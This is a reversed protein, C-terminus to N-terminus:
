QITRSNCPFTYTENKLASRIENELQDEDFDTEFFEDFTLGKYELLYHTKMRSLFYFHSANSLDLNNSIFLDIGKTTELFSCEAFHDCFGECKWQDFFSCYLSKVYGLRDTIICHAFEHALIYKLPASITSDEVSDLVLSKKFTTPKILQIHTIPNTLATYGYADIFILRKQFDHYNNCFITSVQPLSLTDINKKSIYKMLNHFEHIAYARENEDFESARWEINNEKIIISTNRKQNFSYAKLLIYAIMLNYTINLFVKNIIFNIAKNKLRIQPSWTIFKWISKLIIIAKKKCNMHDYFSLHPCDAQM